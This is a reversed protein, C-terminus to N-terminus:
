EEGDLCHKTKTFLNILESTLILALDMKEKKALRREWPSGWSGNKIQKSNEKPSQRLEDGNWKRIAIKLLKYKQPIKSRRVIPADIDFLKVTSIKSHINISLARLVLLVLLWSALFSTHASKNVIWTIYKVLNKVSNPFKSKFQRLKRM